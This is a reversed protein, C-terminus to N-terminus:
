FRSYKVSIIQYMYEYIGWFYIKKKVLKGYFSICERMLFMEWFIDIKVWKQM